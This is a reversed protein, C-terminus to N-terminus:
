YIGDGPTGSPNDGISDSRVTSGVVLGGSRYPGRYSFTTARNSARFATLATRYYGACHQVQDDSTLIRSLIPEGSSMPGVRLANPMRGDATLGDGWSIVARVATGPQITGTMTWRYRQVGTSGDFAIETVTGWLTTITKSRKDRIRGSLAIVDFEIILPNSATYELRASGTNKLEFSSTSALGNIGSSGFSIEVNGTTRVTAFADDISRQSQPTCYSAAYAPAVTSVAVTPAAWAVGRLLARRGDALSSRTAAESSDQGADRTRRPDPASPPMVCHDCYGVTIDMDHSVALVREGTRGPLRGPHFGSSLGEVQGAHARDPVRGGFGDHGVGIVRMRALPAEGM